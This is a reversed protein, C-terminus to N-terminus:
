QKVVKVTQSKLGTKVTAFYNGAPLISVDLTLNTQGMLGTVQKRLM